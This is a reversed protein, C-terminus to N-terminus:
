NDADVNLTQFAIMCVFSAGELFSSAIITDKHHAHLEGSAEDSSEDSLEESLLNASDQGRNCCQFVNWFLGILPIAFVMMTCATHLENSCRDQLWPSWSPSETGAHGTLCMPNCTLLVVFVM